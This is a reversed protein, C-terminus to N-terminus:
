RQEPPPAPMPVIKAGRGNSPSMRLIQLADDQPAAPAPAPPPAPADCSAGAFQGAVADAEYPESALVRLLVIGTSRPSEVVLATSQEAAGPAAPPLHPGRLVVDLAGDVASRHNLAFFPQGEPTYFSLATYSGEVPVHVYQPQGGLRFRCVAYRFKPDLFPVAPHQARVDVLFFTNLPGHGALRSYVPVPVLAPLAILAALHTILGLVVGAAVILLWRKM